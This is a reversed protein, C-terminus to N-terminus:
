HAALTDLTLLSRWDAGHRDAVKDPTLRLTSEPVADVVRRLAEYDHPNAVEAFADRRLDVLDDPAERLFGWVTFAVTLDHMIPARGYLSARKLAVGCCGAVADQKHEGAALQIRNEFRRALVYVYGQDPGPSGLREGRPFVGLTDGPRDAHWSGPRRPPSTYYLDQAAPQPVYEPAAV